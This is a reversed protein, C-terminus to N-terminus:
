IEACLMECVVPMQNVWRSRECDASRNRADKSVRPIAVLHTFIQLSIARNRRRPPSSPSPPSSVPATLNVRTSSLLASKQKGEQQM